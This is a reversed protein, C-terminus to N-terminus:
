FSMEKSITGDSELGLSLEEAGWRSCAPQWPVLCRPPFIHPGDGQGTCPSLPSGVRAFAPFKHLVSPKTAAGGGM